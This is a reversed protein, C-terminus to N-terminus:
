VPAVKGSTALARARAGSPDYVEILYPSNPYAIFTSTSGQTATVALGGRPLRAAAAGPKRATRQLTAFGRPDPYTAITLYTRNDGLQVGPPLYRVYVYGKLTRTLELTYNRRAGAWYVPHGLQTQLAQLSAQTAAVPISRKVKNKNDDGSSTIVIVAAVAAAVVLVVVIAILGRRNKKPPAPATAM